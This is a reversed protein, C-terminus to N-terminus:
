QKLDPFLTGELGQNEGNKKRDKLRMRRHQNATKKKKKQNKISSVRTSSCFLHLRGKLWPFLTGELRQNEDGKKQRKLMYVLALQRDKSKISCVRTDFCFKFSIFTLTKKLWPFLTSELRQNEDGKKQRKLMYALALQSDKIKYVRIGFCFNFSIFTLAKKLWPFLASELCQNEDGKKQRKLM